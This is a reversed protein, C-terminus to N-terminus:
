CIDEDQHQVQMWLVKPCQAARLLENAILLEIGGPVQTTCPSALGRTPVKILSKFVFHKSRHVAKGSFCYCECFMILTTQLCHNFCCIVISLLALTGCIPSHMVERPLALYVFRGSSQRHGPCREIEAAALTSQLSKRTSVQLSGLCPSSFCLSSSERFTLRRRYCLCRKIKDAASTSRM